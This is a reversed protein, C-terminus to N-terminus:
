NILKLIIQFWKKVSINYIRINKSKIQFKVLEKESLKEYISSSSAFIFKKIKNKISFNMVEQLGVINDDFYKKEKEIILIEASAALHILCDIKNKFNKISKIDIINKKITTIGKELKRVKNSSM